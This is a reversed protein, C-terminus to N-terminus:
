KSRARENHRSSHPNLGELAELLQVRATRLEALHAVSLKRLTGAGRRTLVVVVKRRDANTRSRRILSRRVSRNVLEVASHHQIQLREAL